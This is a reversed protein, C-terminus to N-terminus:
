RKKDEPRDNEGRTKQYYVQFRKRLRDRRWRGYADRLGSGFRPWRPGRLYLWGFVMGGLHAVHAVGGGVASVSSWFTVLGLILVLYKARIPLVFYLLIVRDPFLLGYAALLGYIAGSAGIIPIPSSPTVLTSIIAAGIGTIFYFRMFRRTGWLSELESGFMWLALLNFAIHLLGGHLFMYTALQWLFLHHVVEYPVLGFLRDLRVQAFTGALAQFLFVSVNAILLGKVAPTASGGIMFTRAGGRDWRM